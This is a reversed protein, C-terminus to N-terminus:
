AIRIHRYSKSAYESKVKGFIEVVGVHGFANGLEPSSPMHRQGGKEAFVNIEWQAAASPAPRPGAKIKKHDPRQRPKPM